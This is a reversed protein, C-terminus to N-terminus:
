WTGRTRHTYNSKGHQRLCRVVTQVGCEMLEAITKIQAGGKRLSLIQRTREAKQRDTYRVYSM